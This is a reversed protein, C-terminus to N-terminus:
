HLPADYLVLCGHLLVPERPVGLRSRLAGPRLARNSFDVPAGEVDPEDAVLGREGGRNLWSIINSKAKLYELHGIVSTLNWMTGNEKLYRIEEDTKVHEPIFTQRNGGQGGRQM